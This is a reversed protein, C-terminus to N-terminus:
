APLRCGVGIVIEVVFVVSISFPDDFHVLLQTWETGLGIIFCRAGQVQESYDGPGEPSIRLYTDQSSEAPINVDSRKTVLNGPELRSVKCGIEM